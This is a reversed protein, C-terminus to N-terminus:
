LQEEKKKKLQPQGKVELTIKTVVPGSHRNM